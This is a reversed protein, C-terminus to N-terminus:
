MMKLYFLFESIPGIIISILKTLAGSIGGILGLVDFICLVRRSYYITSTSFYIMQDFM